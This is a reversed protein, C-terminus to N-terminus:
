KGSSLASSLIGDTRQSIRAPRTQGSKFKELTSHRYELRGAIKRYELRQQCAYRYLTSKSIGLCKAADPHELWRDETDGAVYLERGIRSPLAIGNGSGAVLKELFAIIAEADSPVLLLCALLRPAERTAQDSADSDGKEEKITGMHCVPTGLNVDSM